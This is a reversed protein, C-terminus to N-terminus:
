FLFLDFPADYPLCLEQFDSLRATSFMQSRSCSLFRV